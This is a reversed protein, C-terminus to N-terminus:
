LFFNQFNIEDIIILNKIAYLIYYNHTLSQKDNCILCMREETKCYCVFFRHSVRFNEKERYKNSEETKHIDLCL